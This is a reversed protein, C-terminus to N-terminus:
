LAYAARSVPARAARRVFPGALGPFVGLAMMAGRVVWRRRLSASLVRCLTKARRMTVRHYQRWADSLAPAWAEVGALALGAVTRGGDLAWCIGEGTFPEVYGAADGVRFLREESVDYASRSLLPTGRWHARELGDPPVVGARVLIEAIVERPGAARLAAPDVAAAVNVSGSELRVMGVYGYRGV